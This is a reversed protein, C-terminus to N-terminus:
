YARPSIAMCTKFYKCAAVAQERSLGRVRARFVWGEGAKLPVIVTKANTKLSKPLKDMAKTLTEDSRVRSTFAGIQIAWDNDNAADIDEQQPTFSAQEVPPADAKGGAAPAPSGIGKLATIAMVGTEYRRAVAPDFDGEGMSAGMTEEQMALQAAGADQSADRASPKRDPIPATSAVVAAPAPSDQQAIRVDGGARLKAFGQDLLAAVRDNRSQTTRGGFVVAILRHNGRVASAALNFGSPQIYGTKIGDMGEYTEMLRNHNRHTLGKYSFKATSFYKYQAPYNQIIYRSLRAIDRASSFQSPHHLGSANQFHTNTMGIERAKQNMMAVFRDESGGISEGMAVAIDNASKTVLAYIADKMVISSGATLGLKSPPQAAAHSSIPLRTNITLNGKQLAEFALLLTMMKVLSAPHLRKDASSEHLVSGTDADIVIAAYRNNPAAAKRKVAAHAALPEMVVLTLFALLALA